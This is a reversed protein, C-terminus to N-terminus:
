RFESFKIIWVGMWTGKESFKSIVPLLDPVDPDGADSETNVLNRTDGLRM